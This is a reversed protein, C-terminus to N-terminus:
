EGVEKNQEICFHREVKDNKTIHGEHIGHLRYSCVLCVGPFAERFEKAHKRHMRRIEYEFWLEGTVLVVLMVITCLAFWPKM